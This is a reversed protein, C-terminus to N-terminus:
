NEIAKKAIKSYTFIEPGKEEAITRMKKFFIQDDKLKLLTNEITTEESDDIFICNGGLDVHQIGDWRYFVCPLGLGVAEEWLVSHTGPFFAIDSAFFYKHINESGVWNIYRVNDNQCKLNIEQKLDETPKGFVILKLNTIKEREVLNIFVGLLKHINKRRDLKGGTIIVIDDTLLGLDNRIDKRIIEKNEYKFLSDDAGFPLLEIKKSNIGYIDRLFDNRIPLTGYFKKTYKSITQACFKYIFKHLINKSLWNKGSNIFDTHSDVYITVKNKKAYNVISLISLFQCDHLFIIDPQIQNIYSTIGKYIRLKKALFFPLWRVYPIRKIPILERTFYEAPEIYGLKINDIYTETSALIYVDNGQLKHIKPFINEQYSFNDIYFAALCCHLVKM